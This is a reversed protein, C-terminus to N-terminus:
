VVKIIFALTYYPPRNEHPQGGGTNNETAHTKDLPSGDFHFENKTSSTDNGVDMRYKIPHTHAPIQIATLTVEKAGGLQKMSGYDALLDPTAQQEDDRKAYYGAVFRGRLDPTQVGNVTAGDCLAFGAPIAAVAGSWMIIGGKPMALNQLAQVEAKTASNELLFGNTPFATLSSFAFTNVNGVNAGFEVRRTVYANNYIQSGATVDQSSEVIRITSQLTGGVFPLIEGNIVVTGSSVSSGNVAVGALIYNGGASKAFEAALLIQQQIFDLGETSLPFNRQPRNIYNARNM